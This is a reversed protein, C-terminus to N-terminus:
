ENTEYKWGKFFERNFAFHNTFLFLAVIGVTLELNYKVVFSPKVGYSEGYALNQVTCVPESYFPNSSDLCDDSGFNDNVCGSKSDCHMYYQSDVSWNNVSLGWLSIFLLLVVVLWLAPTFVKYPKGNVEKLVFLKM